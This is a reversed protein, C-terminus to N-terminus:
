LYHVRGYCAAIALGLGVCKWIASGALSLLMGSHALAAPFVAMLLAPGLSVLGGLVLGGIAVVEIIRGRKRGAARLVMDGLFAGYAPAIFFVFFPINYVVVGALGLVVAVVIALALRGPHVKFLASGRLSACDPCRTGAPGPIMCRTCIPRDCKGCSLQTEVKPHRYCQM